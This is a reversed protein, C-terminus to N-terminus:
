KKDIWKISFIKAAIGQEGHHGLSYCCMIYEDRLRNVTSYSFPGEDIVKFAWTRGNDRSYWIKGETRKRKGPASCLVTEGCTEMVQLCRTATITSAFGKGWTAGGDDSYHMVKGDSSSKNRRRVMLIRKGGSVPVASAENHNFATEDSIVGGFKWSQGLDDSFIVSSSSKYSRFKAHDDCPLYDGRLPGALILRGAYPGAEIKRVQGILNIFALYYDRGNRKYVRDSIGRHDKRKWSKGYDDSYYELILCGAKRSFTTVDIDLRKKILEPDKLKSVTEDISVSTLLSLRKIGSPLERFFTSMAYTQMPLPNIFKIESFTKGGDFSTVHAIMKESKDGSGDLRAQFFVHIVGRGDTVVSPQFAGGVFRQRGDVNYLKTRDVKFVSLRPSMHGEGTVPAFIDGALNTQACGATLLIAVFLYTKNQM